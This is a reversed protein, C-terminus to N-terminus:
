NYSPAISIENANHSYLLPISRVHDVCCFLKESDYLVIAFHGGLNRIWEAIETLDIDKKSCLIQVHDLSRNLNINM